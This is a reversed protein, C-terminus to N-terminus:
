AVKTRFLEECREWRKEFNNTEKNMEYDYEDVKIETYMLRVTDILSM